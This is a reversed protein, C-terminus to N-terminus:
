ESDSEELFLNEQQALAIAFCADSLRNLYPIILSGEELDDMIAVVDREARRVVTRAVHLSAVEITGGPLIFGRNNDPLRSKAEEILREAMEVHEPKVRYEETVTKSPSLAVESLVYGVGEQLALLDEAERTNGAQEQYAQALGLWSSLEDLTGLADMHLHNKPVRGVKYLDTEGLDGRKTTIRRKAVM